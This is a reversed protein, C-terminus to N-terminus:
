QLLTVGPFSYSALWKLEQEIAAKNADELAFREKDLRFQEQKSLAKYADLIPMAQTAHHHGRVRALENLGWVAPDLVSILYHLRMVGETIDCQQQLVSNAIFRIDSVLEQQKNRLNMEASAQEQRQKEEVAKVKRTLHWAYGALLAIILIASLLLLTSITNM